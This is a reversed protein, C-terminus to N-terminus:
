ARAPPAAGPPLLGLFLNELLLQRNGKRRIAELTTELEEVARPAREALRASLPPLRDAVDVNVLLTAAEPAADRVLLDRLLTMLIELDREVGTGGRAVAEARAVAIGPDGRLLLTELVELVSERRRRFEDLDLELAAGIRGGSLRARLAAEEPGLLRQEILHRTIEAAPVLQFPIAQCRSRLTPLLSERSPALLVLVGHPPPEELTKLLANAAEAEMRHAQDIILISREGEAPPRQLAGISRRIRDILVSWSPHAVADAQREQLDIGSVGEGATEGRDFDSRTEPFVVRVDPHRLSRADIRVCAPCGGCPRGDSAAPCLLARCLALAATLKGVGPAGHFILSPVFRRARIGRELAAAARPQGILGSFPM